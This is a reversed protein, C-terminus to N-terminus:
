LAENEHGGQHEEDEGKSSWMDERFNSSKVRKSNRTIKKMNRRTNRRM